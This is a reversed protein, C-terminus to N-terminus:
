REEQRAREHNAPSAFESQGATLVDGAKERFAMYLQTRRPCGCTLLNNLWPPSGHRNILHRPHARVRPGCQVGDAGFAQRVVWCHPRDMGAHELQRVDQAHLASSGM